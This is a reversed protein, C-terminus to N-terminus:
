LEVLTKDSMSVRLVATSILQHINLRDSRLRFDASAAYLRRRRSYLAALEHQSREAVLPRLAASDAVRLWAVQWALDLWLVHGRSQILDVAALTEVVGGGTALVLDEEPALSQLADYERLRFGAENEERFLEPITQGSRRTIVADLDVFRRRTVSAVQTGVTTKGSGMFGTFIIWM